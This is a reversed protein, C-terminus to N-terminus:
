PQARDPGELTAPVAVPPPSGARGAVASPEIEDLWAPAHHRAWRRSITGRLMSM